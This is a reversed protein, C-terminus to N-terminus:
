PISSHAGTFQAGQDTNVIDVVMTRAGGGHWVFIRPILLRWSIVKRSAWDMIVVLYAFGHAVACLYYGCGLQDPREITMGKPLSVGSSFSGACEDETAAGYQWDGAGGDAQGNRAVPGIVSFGPRM